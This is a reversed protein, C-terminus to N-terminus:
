LALFQEFALTDASVNPYMQNSLFLSIPLTHTRLAADNHNPSKTNPISSKLACPLCWPKSVSSTMCNINPFRHAMPIQKTPYSKTQTPFKGHWTRPTVIFASHLHTSYGWIYSWGGMFTPFCHECLRLGQVRIARNTFINQVILNYSCRNKNLEECDRTQWPFSQCCTKKKHKSVGM